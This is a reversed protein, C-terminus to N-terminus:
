YKLSYSGIQTAGWSFSSLDGKIYTQGGDVKLFYDVAGGKIEGQADEPIDLDKVAEDPVKIWEDTYAKKEESM